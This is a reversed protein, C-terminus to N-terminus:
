LNPQSLVGVIAGGCRGRNSLFDSRGLKRLGRLGVRKESDEAGGDERYEWGSTWFIASMEHDGVPDEIAVQVLELM